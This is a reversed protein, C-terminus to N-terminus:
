ACAPHATSARRRAASPRPDPAAGGGGRAHRLSRRRCRFPSFRGLVSSGNRADTRPRQILGAAHRWRRLTRGGDRLRGRREPPVPRRSRGGLRAGHPRAPHPRHASPADRRVGRGDHRHGDTGARRRQCPHWPTRTRGGLQTRLLAASLFATGASLGHKHHVCEVWVRGNSAALDNRAEQRENMECHMNSAAISAEQFRGAAPPCRSAIPSQRRVPVAAHVATPVLGTARRVLNEFQQYDSSSHGGSAADPARGDAEGNWISTRTTV